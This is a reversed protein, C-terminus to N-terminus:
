EKKQFGAGRAKGLGRGWARGRGGGRGRFPKHNQFPLPEDNKKAKSNINKVEKLAAEVVRSWLKKGRRKTLLAKRDHLDDKASEVCRKAEAKSVGFRIHLIVHLSDESLCGAEVLWTPSTADARRSLLAARSLLSQLDYKKDSALLTAEQLEVFRIEEKLTETLPFTSWEWHPLHKLMGTRSDASCAAVQILEELEDDRTLPANDEEESHEEEEEGEEEEESEETEEHEEEEDLEERLRAAQSRTKPPM